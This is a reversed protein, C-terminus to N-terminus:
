YKGQDEGVEGVCVVPRKGKVGAVGKVADNVSVGKNDEMWSDDNCRWPAEEMAVM